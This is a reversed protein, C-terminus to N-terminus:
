VGETFNRYRQDSRGDDEIEVAVAKLWGYVM